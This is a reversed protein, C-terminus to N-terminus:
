VPVNPRDAAAGHERDISRLETLTFRYRLAILGAGAVLMAPLLSSIISLREATAASQEAQAPVLGAFRDVLVGAALIALGGSLQQWFSYIGFFVGDRRHGNHREDQATIDAMMSPVIVAAATAFFGAVANGIVLIRFSGTGFPRGEGVLWYGGSIVFATVFTTAAYVHHKEIRRTVQVWAVAGALAGLYFAAFYLTLPQDAVIRAHYTLFHMSLSANIAAGM